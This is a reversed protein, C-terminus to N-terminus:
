SLIPTWSGLPAVDVFADPDFIEALLEIGDIVRPGPRSFYASGDVAFVQGRRVALLEGYDAPLPTRGWEELTEPLHFGCPMLLLMEPDVERVAEWTTERSKEGDSGLLDWGGARRIQEPVWHGLAFPPDLWELGVVRPPRHGAERRAAVTQEVSGLRERLSEVLDVAADEAETMAGVTSITNLIGEISTPELSVVAIDADIRRAVENVEHYSVACVRCLEQTLILDPEAAALAEDDLAYLSSGGHVADSVLQHIRGGPVGALDFTSRTVVPKGVVEPPWDCEHTVAVLEDGLGLACVIETASPLLSVIRM